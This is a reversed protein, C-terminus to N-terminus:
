NLRMAPDNKQAAAFLMDNLKNVEPEKRDIRMRSRALPTLGFEQCLRYITRISEDIIKFLPTARPSKKSGVLLPVDNLERQAKALTAYAQCLNALAIQDGATLLGARYLVPALQAWQKQADESLHDPCDPIAREFNPEFRHAQHQPRGEIQELQPQKPNRPM